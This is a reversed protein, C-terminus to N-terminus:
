QLGTGKENLNKTQSNTPEIPHAEGFLTSSMTYMFSAPETATVSQSDCSEAGQLTDILPLFHQLTITYDNVMVMGNSSSNCIEGGNAQDAPLEKLM